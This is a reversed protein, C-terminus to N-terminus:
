FWPPFVDGPNKYKHNTPQNESLRKAAKAALSTGNKKPQHNSFYKEGKMIFHMANELESIDSSKLIYGKAGIEIMKLFYEDDAFMTFIIIKIDPMIELAKRTADLGNMDPMDLDMLVLDPKLCSLLDIFEVGTSAEGIITAMNEMTIISKLGQRFVRHDDVIIIEPKKM